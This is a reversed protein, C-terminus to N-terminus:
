GLQYGAKESWCKGSATAAAVFAQTLLGPYSTITRSPIETYLGVKARSRAALLLVANSLKFTSYANASVTCQWLLSHSPQSTSHGSMLLKHVRQRLWHSYGYSIYRALGNYSWNYAVPITQCYLSLKSASFKELTQTDTNPLLTLEKMWGDLRPMCTLNQNGNRWIRSGWM